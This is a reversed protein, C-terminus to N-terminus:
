GNSNDETKLKINTFKSFFSDKAYESYYSHLWQYKKQIKENGQNAEINAKIFNEIENKRDANQNLSINQIPNFYHVFYVDDFDKKILLAISSDTHNNSSVKDMYDQVSKKRFFGKNALQHEIEKSLVIRPFVAKEEIEYAEVLAPGFVTNDYVYYTGYSIGGRLIVGCNLMKNQLTSCFWLMFVIGDEGDPATVIISDSIIKIEVNDIVSQPVLLAGFYNCYDYKLMQIDDFLAKIEECSKNRCIEKFGLIDLFAVYGSSYTNPELLKKQIYENRTM